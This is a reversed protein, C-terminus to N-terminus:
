KTRDKEKVTLNGKYRVFEFTQLVGGATLTGEPQCRATVVAWYQTGSQGNIQTLQTNVPECYRDNDHFTFASQNISLIKTCHGDEIWSPLKYFTTQSDLSSFCWDGVFHIPVTKEATRAYGPSIAMLAIITGLLLRRLTM